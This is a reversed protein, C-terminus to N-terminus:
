FVFIIMFSEKKFCQIPGGNDNSGLGFEKTHNLIDKM